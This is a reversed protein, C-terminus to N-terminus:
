ERPPCFERHRKGDCYVSLSYEDSLLRGNRKCRCQSPSVRVLKSANLKKVSNHTIFGKNGLKYSEIEKLKLQKYIAQVTYGLFKAATIAMKPKSLSHETLPLNMVVKHLRITIFVV